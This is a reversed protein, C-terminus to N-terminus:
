VGLAVFGAATVLTAAAPRRARRGLLTLEELLVLASIAAMAVLSGASAVMVAMLAWCSWIGRSAQMFAFRACGADARRGVPPLPVTRRCGFVARRKPRTLQWGGAVLLALALLADHGLATRQEVLRYTSLAVFGFAVWVALYVTLYLAMARRRRSRVSNLGVHRIAPLTAPVMMATAMLAWMPLASLVPAPRALGGHHDSRVAGAHATESWPSSLLALWTLAVLAAIPWEPHWRTWRAFRVPM